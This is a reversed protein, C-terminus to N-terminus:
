KSFSILYTTGNSNIIEMTAQLQTVFEHILVSGLSESEEKQAEFGPGNDSVRLKIRDGKEVFDIQLKGTLEPKLAHKFANSVLENVLLGVTTAQRIPLEFKDVKLVLELNKNGFGSVLGNVLRTLYQDMDVKEKDNGSQYLLEHLSALSDLRARTQNLIAKANADDTFGAQMKVMSSALALNNKARHNVEKILVDKFALEARLNENLVPLEVPTDMLMQLGRRAHATKEMVSAPDTTQVALIPTSNKSLPEALIMWGPGFSPSIEFPLLDQPWWGPESNEPLDTELDWLWDKTPFWEGGLLDSQTLYRSPNKWWAKWEFRKGNWIGLASSQVDLSQGLWQALTAYKEETPLNIISTGMEPVASVITKSINVEKPEVKPVGIEASVIFKARNRFDFITTTRKGAEIKSNPNEFENGWKAVLQNESDKVEFSKLGAHLWNHLKNENEAKKKQDDIDQIFGTLWRKQQADSASECSFSIWKLRNDVEILLDERFAKGFNIAAEMATAFKQLSEASLSSYFQQYDLQQNDTQFLSISAEKPLFFQNQDLYFHWSYIGFESAMLRQSTALLTSDAPVLSMLFFDQNQIPLLLASILYSQGFSLAFNLDPTFHVSDPYAKEIQLKNANLWRDIKVNSLGDELHLSDVTEWTGRGTERCIWSPRPSLATLISRLTSKLAYKEGSLTSNM